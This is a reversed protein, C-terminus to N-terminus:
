KQSCKGCLEFIDGHVDCSERTGSHNRDSTYAREYLTTVKEFAIRINRLDQLAGEIEQVGSGAAEPAFGRVLIVAIATMAAGLLAAALVANMSSGSFLAAIQQHLHFAKELCYHFASALVGTVLGIVAALLYIRMANIISSGREPM